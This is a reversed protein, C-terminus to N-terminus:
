GLLALKFFRFNLIIKFFELYGSIRRSFVLISSNVRGCVAVSVNSVGGCLAVGLALFVGFFYLKSHPSGRWGDFEHYM